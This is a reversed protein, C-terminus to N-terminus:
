ANYTISLLIKSSPLYIWLVTKSLSYYPLQPPSPSCSKSLPYLVQSDQLLAQTPDWCWYVALYMFCCRFSESQCRVCSPVFGQSDGPCHQLDWPAFGSVSCCPGYFPFHPEREELSSCQLDSVNWADNWRLTTFLQNTIIHVSTRQPLCMWALSGASYTPLVNSEWILVSMCFVGILECPFSRQLSRDSFCVMPCPLPIILVEASPCDCKTSCRCM